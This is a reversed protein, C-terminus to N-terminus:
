LTGFTITASTVQSAHASKARRAELLTGEEKEMQYTLNHIEDTKEQGERVVEAIQADRDNPVSSNLTMLKQLQALRLAIATQLEDIRQQQVPNDLTLTRLGELDQKIGTSAAEFTQQFSSTPALVYGRAAGQAQMM